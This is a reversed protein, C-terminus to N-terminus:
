ENIQNKYLDILDMVQFISLDEVGIAGEELQQQLKINELGAKYDIDNKFEQVKLFKEDTTIEKPGEIQKIKSNKLKIFFEKIINIINM